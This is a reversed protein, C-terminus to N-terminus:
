RGAPTLERGDVDADADVSAAPAEDSPRSGPWWNARGLLTMAAPLILGRIVTVDLVLAVLMGIGVAKMAGLGSACFGLFVIGIAVAALTIVPGTDRIGERVATDNRARADGTGAVAKWRETIRSLLFIQYDMTLGFALFGIFLPTSADIAGWAEIGLLEAGWGWQFIAVLVGLTSLITLTSLLLTKIPLVVSRTLFFVLAFTAVAVLAVGIPLRELIQTQTDISQAAPGTVRLDLGTDLARIERVLDQARPGSAEGHPTVALATVTEGLDPVLEADVAGPLGAIRDFLPVVGPDQLPAAVVVVVPEVDLASFRSLMADYARRSEAAPPLAHSDSSDVVTAAAPAALLALATVGLITVAAAHRQAIRAVVTASTDPGGSRTCTASAACM